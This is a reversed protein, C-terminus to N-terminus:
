DLSAKKTTVHTIAGCTVFLKLFTLFDKKPLLKEIKGKTKNLLQLMEVLM